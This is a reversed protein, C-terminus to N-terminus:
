DTKEFLLEEGKYFIPNGCSFEVVIDCSAALASDAEALAKRFSETFRDFFRADCFVNDSVFVANQIHEAFFLLDESVRKAASFDPEGEMSGFMENTVLATVSDVLYTGKCDYEKEYKSISRGWEATKFGWGARENRHRAIRADDESDHPEMTALYWLHSESSLKKACKQAFMSKGNKSGGSIFIKM